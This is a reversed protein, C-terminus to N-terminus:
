YHISNKASGFSMTLPDHGNKTLANKFETIDIPKFIHKVMKTVFDEFDCIRM